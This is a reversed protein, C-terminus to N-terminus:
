VGMAARPNRGDTWEAAFRQLEADDAPIDIMLTILQDGRGGDKKHFGKGKLRMQTGSEVGAPLSLDITKGDNLTIRQKALTAADVFPARLSMEQPSGYRRGPGNVVYDLTGALGIAIPADHEM